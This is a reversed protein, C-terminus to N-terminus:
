STSVAKKRSAPKRPTVSNPRSFTPGVSCERAVRITAKPMRHRGEPDEADIGPHVGGAPQATASFPCNTGTSQHAITNVGEKGYRSTRM